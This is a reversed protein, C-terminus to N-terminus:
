SQRSPLCPRWQTFRESNSVSLQAVQQPAPALHISREICRDRRFLQVPLAQQQPLRLLLEAISEATLRYGSLALLEDGVMLGAQHAPGGHYVATLTLGANSAKYQAGLWSGEYPAQNGALDDPRTVSRFTLELGLLPLFDALPIDMAQQTWCTLQESLEDLQWQLLIQQVADDPTGTAQYQQWMQQMLEALSRGQQHLAADLALAVLSGKAYYSSVANVANEDQKYFKTWADFSSDTLSQVTNSPNRTVRTITKELVKLYNEQDILGSSFLAQDDFYSTFGEYIWLQRCYQEAALQYPHFDAPKLRKVWWTHLYEHSCLGLFTQYGEPIAAAESSHQVAPFDYRSCLLLTSACHELGGYGSDTVWCLFWYETLDAPLEGFLQRQQQCIRELDDTIRTQDTLNNGSIVLYHPREDLTFETINFIGMLIPSDILQQYHEAQYDGFQLRETSGARPLATAVRWLAADADTPQVLTLQHPQDEYGAVSLCLCAPNLIAVEDDIYAARVSRDFAYLSYKVRVPQNRHALQWSQKDQKELALLGTSDSATISVINRAFDRIMYSGPIWAPLSLQLPENSFPTVTLEIEILHAALDTCRLQYQIAAKM